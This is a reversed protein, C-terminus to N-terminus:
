GSFRQGQGQFSQWRWRSWCKELVHYFIDRIRCRSSFVTSFDRFNSVFHTM